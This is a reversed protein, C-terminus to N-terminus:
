ATVPEGGGEAVYRMKHPDVNAKAGAIGVEDLESGISAGAGRGRQQSREMATM